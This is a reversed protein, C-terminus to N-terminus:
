PQTTQRDTRWVSASHWFTDFRTLVVCALIAFDESVSLNATFLEDLFQVPEGLALTNFSLPTPFIRLKWGILRRIESVTCSLNSNIVLLFDCVGKWDTGFDVVKSSRSSGSRVRSCLVHVYRANFYAVRCVSSSFLCCSSMRSEKDCSVFYSSYKNFIFNEFLKSLLPSL